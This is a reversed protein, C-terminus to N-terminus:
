SRKEAESRLKKFICLVIIGLTVIYRVVEAASIPRHQAEVSEHDAESTQPGHRIVEPSGKNSETGPREAADRAGARSAEGDSVTRIRVIEPTSTRRPRQGQIVGDEDLAEIRRRIM